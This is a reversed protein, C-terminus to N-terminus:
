RGQSPGSHRATDYGTALGLPWLANQPSICGGSVFYRRPCCSFTEATDLQAARAWCERSREEVEFVAQCSPGLLVEQVSGRQAPGLGGQVLRLYLTRGERVQCHTPRQQKGPKCSSTCRLCELQSSGEGRKRKWDPFTPSGRLTAPRNQGGDYCSQLVHVHSGAPSFTLSSGM